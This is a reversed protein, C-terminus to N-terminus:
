GGITWSDNLTVRNSEDSYLRFLSVCSSTLSNFSHKVWRNGVDETNQVWLSETVSTLEKNDSQFLNFFLCCLFEEPNKKNIENFKKKKKKKNIENKLSLKLLFDM